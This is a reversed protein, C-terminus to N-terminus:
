IRDTRDMSPRVVGLTKAIHDWNGQSLGGGGNGSAKADVPHSGYQGILSLEWSMKSTDGEMPKVQLDITTRWSIGGRTGESRFM